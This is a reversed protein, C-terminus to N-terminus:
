SKEFFTLNSYISNGCGGKGVKRFGAGCRERGAQAPPVPLPTAVVASDTAVGRVMGGGCPPLSSDATRVSCRLFPFAPPVDLLIAKKRVARTRRMEGAWALSM